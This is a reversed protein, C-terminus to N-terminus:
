SKCIEASCSINPSGTLSLSSSSSSAFMFTISSSSFLRREASLLTESELEICAAYESLDLLLAVVLLPNTVSNLLSM